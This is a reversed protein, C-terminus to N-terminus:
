VTKRVFDIRDLDAVGLAYKASGATAIHKAPRDDEKLPPMGNDKRWSEIISACVTDLAVPDTAVIVGGYRVAWQAKFGPGGHYQLTTADCVVLRQKDRIQPLANLDAAYPDGCNPHYKNPNHICGFNNKLSGSVGVIGHDKLVPVNITATTHRTLLTSLYGGVRGSMALQRESGIGDHDTGVCRMGRNDTNLQYGARALEEDTRDWALVSEEPVGAGRLARALAHALEPRSSLNPGALCNVKLGVVDDERFLSGWASKGDSADRLACVAAELMDALVGPDVQDGKFCRESRVEVVKSSAGANDAGTAAVPAGTEREACGGNSLGALGLGLSGVKQLFTRRNHDPDLCHSPSSV